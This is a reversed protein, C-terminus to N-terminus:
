GGCVTCHVDDPQDGNAMGDILESIWDVFLVGEVIESFFGDQSLVTHSTGPAVYSSLEVGAAEIQQENGDILDLLATPSTGAIQVFTSQVGDFAYDHRAFTIRDSHKGAQIFLAPFSWDDASLGENVPWDPVIDTAGWLQGIAANLGPADPYSGSSDAIVAVRAEPLLDTTLGAYLPTPVSGASEGAVVVQTARPFRETMDTLATVANVYGNHHVTLEDSYQQVASGLHVDGTCYPVFIMSYDAFPNKENTADFIGGLSAPNDEPGTTRKYIGSAPSCSQADFCAGGGQLFFVVKTPDAERVWFSYPSNDSCKCNPPATVMQWEASAPVGSGSVPDGLLPDGISPDSATTSDVVAVGTTGSDSGTPTAAESSCAVAIAGACVVALLRRIVHYVSRPLRAPPM